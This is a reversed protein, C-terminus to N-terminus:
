TINRSRAGAPNRPVEVASVAELRGARGRGGGKCCLHAKVNGFKNGIRRHKFWAGLV